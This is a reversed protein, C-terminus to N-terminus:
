TFTRWAVSYHETLIDLENLLYHRASVTKARGALVEAGMEKMASRVNINYHYKRLDMFTSEGETAEKIMKHAVKRLDYNVVPLARFDEWLKTPTITFYCHKQGVIRNILIVNYGNPKNVVHLNECNCSALKSCM